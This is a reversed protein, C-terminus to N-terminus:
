RVSRRAGGKRGAWQGAVVFVVMVAFEAFVDRHGGPGRRLSRLFDLM